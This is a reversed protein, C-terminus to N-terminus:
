VKNARDQIPNQKRLIITWGSPERPPFLLDLVSSAFMLAKNKFYYRSGWANEYILDSRMGRIYSETDNELLKRFSDPTYPRVHSFTNWVTRIGPTTLFIRGGPKLVRSAESLFRSADSPSFHEILQAAHVVDFSQDPFELAVANMRFVKLGRRQSDLVLEQDIDTGVFNDPERELFEGRGSGVDLVRRGMLYKAYFPNIKHRIGLRVFECLNM